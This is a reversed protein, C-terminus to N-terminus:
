EGIIEVECQDNQGFVVARESGTELMVALVGTHISCYSEALEPGGVFFATALADACAASRTVVTVSSVRDAPMGSRPDIIHCYRKGKHEFYQEEGGSTAMACDRMRLVALRRTNCRPHRVGIIWGADDRDGSGIARMSSSGATLLCARVRKEITAGIRDLAYGKGISGLNIQVGAREFRITRSAPDLMLRDAGVLARAAEIAHPEPISGQRRLFGWCDSLPGSTIDFAGKTEISLKQCLLLLAFLSKEVRVAGTAATRNIYSVESNEKFVTLQQELGGVTALADRTLNVGTQDSIPLTAEFRCAM